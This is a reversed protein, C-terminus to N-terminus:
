HGMKQIAEAVKGAKIRNAFRGEARAARVKDKGAYKKQAQESQASPVKLGVLNGVAGLPNGNAAELALRSPYFGNKAIHAGIEGFQFPLSAGPTRVNHGFFDHNGIIDTGLAEVPGPSFFTSSTLSPDKKGTAVNYAADTMSLGGARRFQANKNGTVKQAAWDMAPYLGTAVVAAVLLKGVAEARLNTDGVKGGKVLDKALAAWARAAGYKYRNFMGIASSQLVKSATRGAMGAKTGGIRPPIRYNPIEREAEHIAERITMGKRQLELVRQMLMVDNVYWLAKSSAAYAARIASVPVRAAKAFMNAIEADDFLEKGAAKLMAAHYGRTQTSIYQGGMGHRLLERYKPGLTLVQHVASVGDNLLSKVGGPRVWDFGRGIGWHVAVNQAHIVPTIFMPATLARNAKSLAEVPDGPKPREYTDELVEAIHPAFSMGRLQPVAPIPRFGEPRPSNGPVINTLGDDGKFYHEDRHALGEDVLNRKLEELVELHRVIAEDQLARRVTNVTANKNYGTGGNAEIERITAPRVSTYPRDQIDVAEKTPSFHTEGDQDTLMWGATREKASASATALKPKTGMIPDGRTPGETEDLLPDYGEVYRPVYGSDAQYEEADPDGLERRRNIAIRQREAWPARLAEAEQLHEPIEYNPDVMKQEVAHTLEEQLAQDQVVPANDKLFTQAEAKDAERHGSLRYLANDVREVPNTEGGVVPGGEADATATSSIEPSAEPEAAAITRPRPTVVDDPNDDHLLDAMTVPEEAVPKWDEAAAKVPAEITVGRNHSAGVEQMAPEAAAPEEAVPTWDKAAAAPEDFKAVREVVGRKPAEGVKGGGVVFPLVNSAYDGAFTEPLAPIAKHVTKGYTADLIGAPYATIEGLLGSAADLAGKVTRGTQVWPEENPDYKHGGIDNLGSAIQENAQQQRGEIKTVIEKGKSVAQDLLSPPVPVATKPIKKVAPAEAVPTWDNAAPTESAVSWAPDNNAPVSTLAQGHMKPGWGVHLHTGEDIIQDYPLGAAALKQAAARTNGDAPVWDVAQNDLHSSTPSGGVQANKAKSRATSTVQGPGLYSTLTAHPDHWPDPAESVPTWNESM